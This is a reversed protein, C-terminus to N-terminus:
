AKENAKSKLFQEYDKRQQEEKEKIQRAEAEKESKEKDEKKKQKELREIKKKNERSLQEFDTLDLTRPDIGLETDEDEDYIATKIGGLNIGKAYKELITQVSMTQDPITLSPLTFKQGETLEYTLWNQFNRVRSQQKVNSM